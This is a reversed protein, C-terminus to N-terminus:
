ERDWNRLVLQKKDRMQDMWTTLMATGPLGAKDQRKAWQQAINPLSFAWKKKEAKTLVHTKQGYKKECM